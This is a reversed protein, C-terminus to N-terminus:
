LYLIWVMLVCTPFMLLFIKFSNKIIKLWHSLVSEQGKEYYNNIETVFIIVSGPFQLVESVLDVKPQKECKAEWSERPDDGNKHRTVHFVNVLRKREAKDNFAQLATSNDTNYWHINCLQPWKRRIHECKDRTQETDEGGEEVDCYEVPHEHFTLRM